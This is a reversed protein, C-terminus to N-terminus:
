KRKFECQIRQSGGTVIPYMLPHEATWPPQGIHIYILRPTIQSSRTDMQVEVGGLSPMHIRANPNSDLAISQFDADCSLNVDVPSIDRNTIGIVFVLTKKGDFIPIDDEVTHISIPPLTLLKIAQTQCNNITNQQDRNQKDLTDARTKNAAVEVRLNSKESACSSIIERKDAALNVNQSSLTGSNQRVLDLAHGVYFMALVFVWWRLTTGWHAMLFAGLSRLQQKPTTANKFPESKGFSHTEYFFVCIGAFLAGVWNNGLFEPMTLFAQWFWSFWFVVTSPFSM